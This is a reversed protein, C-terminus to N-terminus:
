PPPEVPLSRVGQEDTDKDNALDAPTDFRNAAPIGGEALARSRYSAPSVVPNRSRIRGTLM